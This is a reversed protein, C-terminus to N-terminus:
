APLQAQSLRFVQEVVHEAMAKTGVVKCGPEAIDATRWGQQWASILATEMLGAAEGLGFSERLLMALSLIQGAPNATDAGALDHACGHNTQYVGNGKADYNASFTIGRSGLLAGTLDVLLDGFLNPTLIVNFSSPSRILEYAAFDVNLFKAEVNHKDAVVSAVERWMESIAPVGSDKVIVDMKGRRAAASRAAVEALRQVQTETYSFSHEAVKGAKTTRTNWAGQYVGGVNDRVILLDVRALNEAAIQSSRALQPYPRVPVFKCFLDFHRRLDYVYRGGGPGSLVAGGRDFIDAVFRTTSEPLPQGFQAQADEGVPGGFHVELQIGTVREVASLVRLSADIVEPGIGCGEIVGVVPKEGATDNSRAQSNETLWSLLRAQESKSQPPTGSQQCARQSLRARKSQHDPM